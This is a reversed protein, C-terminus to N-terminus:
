YAIRLEHPTTNLRRGGDETVKQLRSASSAAEADPRELIPVIMTPERDPAVVLMTIRETIAIPAYGSLHLLDPGPTVLVGALGARDASGAARAM